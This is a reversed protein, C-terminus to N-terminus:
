GGHDIVMSVAEKNGSCCGVHLPTCGKYDVVESDAGHKLLHKVMWKNNSFVALHLPTSGLEDVANIQGGELVAKELTGDPLLYRALHLCTRGRTNTANVDSGFVTLLEANSVNGKTIAIHLPTNGDKDRCNVIAGSELLITIVESSFSQYAAQHLPTCGHVNVANVVGGNQLIGELLRPNLVAYHLATNGDRDAMLVDSGSALLIGTGEESTKCSLSVLLPTQGRGNVASLDAGREVLRQIVDPDGFAAARHLPTEYNKDKAELELGQDLLYDLTSVFETEAAFHLTSRGTVVDVAFKDGGNVLYEELLNNSGRDTNENQEPEGLLIEGGFATPDTIGGQTILYEILENSESRQALYLVTRGKKDVAASNSGNQCLIEAVYANGRIAALHLPLWGKSDVLNVDAGHQILLDVSSSRGEYAAAHLPTRHKLDVAHIDAGHEVLWEILSTNSSSAAFHLPTRSNQDLLNVDAGYQLFLDCCETLDESAQSVYHLPSRAYQDTLNVISGHHLLTNLITSIGIGVQEANEIVLIVPTKGSHGRANVDSGKEVLLQVIPFSGLMAALALPTRHCKDRGEKDVGHELLVQAAHFSGQEVAEHLPTTGHVNQCDNAWAGYQLLTKILKGNNNRSALHVPSLSSGNRVKAECGLELLLETVNEVNYETAILLPTESCNNRANIDAGFDILLKSMEMVKFPDQICQLACCLATNGSNNRGNVDEGRQLLFRASDLNNCCVASILSTEGGEDQQMEINGRDCLQALVLSSTNDSHLNSTDAGREILLKAVEGHGAELACILPSIDEMERTQFAGDEEESDDSCSNRHSVQARQAKANISAGQDLLFTAAGYQGAEAAIMLPTKGDFGIADVFLGRALLLQLVGTLGKRAASKLIDAGEPDEKNSLRLDCGREILTEAITAYSGEFAMTLASNGHQDRSNISAGRNLLFNVTDAQGTGAAVDLPSRGVNDRAHISAGQEVLYSVLELRSTLHLVSDGDSTKAFVNGKCEVLFKVVETNQNKVAHHLPLWGKNDCSNLNGGHKLLLHIAQLHGNKAAVLIPSASTCDTNNVSIGHELLLRLAETHGNEAALHLVNQEEYNGRWVDAGLEILRLMNTIRAGMVAHHLPTYGKDDQMELFAGREVLFEVADVENCRAALMLPTERSLGPMVSDVYEGDDLLIRLHEVNGKRAAVHVLSQSQLDKTAKEVIASVQYHKKSTLQRLATLVSKGAFPPSNHGIKVSLAVASDLKAPSNNLTASATEVDGKICASQLCSLGREQDPTTLVNFSLSRLSLQFFFFLSQKILM